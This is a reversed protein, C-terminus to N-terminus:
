YHSLSTLFKIISEVHPLMIACEKEDRPACVDNRSIERAMLHPTYRPRRSNRSHVAFGNKICAREERQMGGKWEEVDQCRFIICNEM